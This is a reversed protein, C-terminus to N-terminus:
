NCERETAIFEPFKSLMAEIMGSYISNDDSEYVLSSALKSALIAFKVKEPLSSNVRNRLYEVSGILEPLHLLIANQYVAQNVLESNDKFYDFIRDYHQNIERSINNSIDTYPITGNADSHRKIILKAEREAMQNLINMVDNVYCKKNALFEQDSFILNAIIEYSSSIVGCKNASADRIIVVGRRQMELRADPTIFSNAGEVIVNASAKGSKNFYKDVTNIDITEPRGGAPIFLDAEVTFALNNFIKYFTDTSVWKEELGKDTMEIRKYLTTMEDKRTQNRYLIFGGLNLASPEYADLDSQLIVKLLAEKELGEPDFLAGSGDIILKIKVKPCREQLLRMCNGAVDGNPGGTFKVSFEDKHMNIGVANMTVEAFRMVGFSTVGYDKHNIGIEKSSIIGQGLIYRRKVGQKAITEIMVDHMNEDPGLEIPEDEGYYDIVRPDKAKGNETVFIDFFANIFSFQLKYLQQRITEDDTDEPLRLVAVMKSGGEYIDKNKLHQTHALVYNEKFMTNASTIYDDRGQTIITRWGGRAIDSFGIHYGCGNRGYFFTVRFPRDIPLDNTFTDDLEELYLPSLRFALAHKEAVFVNTKLTNKIFSLACLFVTKRFSDLYKRGSNFNEILLTLNSLHKKYTDNSLKKPDFRYHFLEVLKIAINPHHHFARMVGELSYSYPHNHALTTHCFYIIANILATDSGTTIGSSVFAKYSLSELSLIQTNYIERQLEKFLESDKEIINGDRSEVYFTSLFYPHVGNSLSLSYSRNVSINLRNFVELLQLLFSRIPPNALGLLLRCELPKEPDGKDQIDLFIGDNLETQTYLNLVRAIRSPPSVEVYSPNNCWLMKLLPEINETHFHPYTNKIEKDVEEHMDVPLQANILLEAIENDQKREYDFRLVEIRHKSNPLTSRSTTLEAYSIYHSPLDKLTKYLSGRTDIQCLLTQKPTDLLMMRSHQEIFSLSNALSSLVSINNQNLLFFLPHMEKKLWNLNELTEQNGETILQNIKKTIEDSKYSKLMKFEQSLSLHHKDTDIASLTFITIQDLM